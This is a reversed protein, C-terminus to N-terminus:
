QEAARRAMEAHHEAHWNAKYDALTGEQWVIIFGDLETLGDDFQNRWDEKHLKIKVGRNARWRKRAIQKAKVEALYTSLEAETTM